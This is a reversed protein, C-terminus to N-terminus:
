ILQGNEPVSSKNSKTTQFDSVQAFESVLCFRLVCCAFFSRFLLLSCSGVLVVLTGTDGNMLFCYVFKAVFV